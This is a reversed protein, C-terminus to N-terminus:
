VNRKPADLEKLEIPEQDPLYENEIQTARLIFDSQEQPSLQYLPVALMQRKAFELIYLNEGRASMRVDEYRLVIRNDGDELVVREEELSCDVPSFGDDDQLMRALKRAVRKYRWDLYLRYGGLFILAAVAFLASALYNGKYIFYIAILAYLGVMLLLNRQRSRVTIPHTMLNHYRLNAVLYQDPTYSFKM